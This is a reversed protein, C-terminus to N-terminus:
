PKIARWAYSVTTYLGETIKRVLGHVAGYIVFRRYARIEPHTWFRIMERLSCFTELLNAFNAPGLMGLFVGAHQQIHNVIATRFLDRHPHRSIDGTPTIGGTIPNNSFNNKLHRRYCSHINPIVISGGVAHAFNALYYDACIRFKDAEPPIIRDLVSKRYMMATSTSWRWHMGQGRYPSLYIAERPTQALRYTEGFDWSNLIDFPIKKNLFPSIIGIELDTHVGAHIEGTEDIQIQNSATFAAVYSANLHASLHAGLFDPLLLDDADVFVVFNGKAQDVGTKFGQMQGGNKEHSVLRFKNDAEPSAMFENVVELTNDTSCDDVIICEFYRYTQRTVSRLCDTIYNAYNYSTVILSVFPPKISNLETRIPELSCPPMTIKM